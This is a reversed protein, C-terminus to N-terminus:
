LRIKGLLLEVGAQVLRGGELILERIFLLHTHSYGRLLRLCLWLLDFDLALVNNSRVIDQAMAIILALECLVGFLLEILM